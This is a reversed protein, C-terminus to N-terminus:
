INEICSLQDFPCQKLPNCLSLFSNHKRDNVTLKECVQGRCPWQAVEYFTIVIHTYTHTHMYRHAYVHTHKLSLSVGLTSVFSPSPSLSLSLSVFLSFIYEDLKGTGDCNCTYSNVQSTCSANNQCVAPVQECLNLVTECNVGTYGTTFSVHHAYMSFQVINIRFPFEYQRRLLLVLPGRNLTEDSPSDATISMGICDGM